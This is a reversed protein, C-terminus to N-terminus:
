SKRLDKELEKLKELVQMTIDYKQVNADKYPGDKQMGRQCKNRLARMAFGVLGVESLTLELSGTKEM